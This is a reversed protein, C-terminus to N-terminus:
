FETELKTNPENDKKKETLSVNQTQGIFRPGM